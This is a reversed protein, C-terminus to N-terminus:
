ALTPLRRAHLLSKVALSLPDKDPNQGDANDYLSGIVLLVASRVPPPVGEEVMVGATDEYVLYDIPQGDTDQYATFPEKIYELVLISAEEILRTIRADDVDGPPKLHEKAVELTVLGM